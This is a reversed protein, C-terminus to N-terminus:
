FKRSFVTGLNSVQYNESQGNVYLGDQDFGGFLIHKDHSDIADTWALDYELLRENNNQYYMLIDYMAEVPSQRILHNIQLKSIESKYKDKDGTALWERLEDKRSDFESIAEQYEKPIEMGKFVQNKLYNIAEATQELYDKNTTNPILEKSTLAWKFEPTNKNFFEQPKEGGGRGSPDHLIKDEGENKFKETLMMNMKEMTLPEGDPAKDTRLVLFQNLEEARQLEEKSFPISPISEPKLKIGFAKEIEDPGMVEKEGMIERATEIQETTSEIKDDFATEKKEEINPTEKNLDSVRETENIEEKKPKFMKFQKEFINM